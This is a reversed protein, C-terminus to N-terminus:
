SATIKNKMHRLAIVLADDTLSLAHGAECNCVIATRRLQNSQGQGSDCNQSAPRRRRAFPAVRTAAAPM